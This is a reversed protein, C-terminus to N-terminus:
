EAVLEVADIGFWVNASAQDKGVSTFRVTHRGAPLDVLGLDIAGSPCVRGSYLNINPGVHKGDLAVRVVGFDPAATALVRLRCRGGRRNALELTVSGGPAARCLLQRGGSWMPAGWETMEQVSSDCRYRSVVPMLEAEFREIRTEPRGPEYKVWLADNAYARVYAYSVRGYGKKGWGPGASNRFVFMGGGNHAPNDAYGVLVISHGDFVDRPAPVERLVDGKLEKPWRLGCAVPHGSALAHKIGKFESDDLPRAVNWRRLWHVQWRGALERANALAKPTPVRRADATPLYPMLSARCIGLTELGHVAEYFMAQDGSLGTAKHAAWILFEESLRGGPKSRHRGSEFEALATIAFLSCVDRDGQALPTLGLKEFEPVLDVAAPLAAGPARQARGSGAVGLLIMLM